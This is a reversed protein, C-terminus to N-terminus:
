RSPPNPRCRTESVQRRLSSAILVSEAAHPLLLCTRSRDIVTPGQEHCGRGREPAAQRVHVRMLELMGEDCAPAGGWWSVATATSSYIEWYELCYVRFLLM